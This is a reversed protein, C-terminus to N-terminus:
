AGDGGRYKERERERDRELEMEGNRTPNNPDPTTIWMPVMLPMTIFWAIRCVLMLM